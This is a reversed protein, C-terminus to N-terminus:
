QPNIFHILLFSAKFALQKLEVNCHPNFSLFFPKFMINLGNKKTSILPISGSAEQIGNLREGLQAIGGCIRNDQKRPTKREAVFYIIDFTLRNTLPNFANKQLFEASKKCDLHLHKVM